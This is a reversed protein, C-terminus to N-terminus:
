AIVSVGNSDSPRIYGAKCLGKQRHAKLERFPYVQKCDKNCQFRLNLLVELLVQHQSNMIDYENCVTCSLKNGDRPHGSALSYDQLCKLCCSQFCHRCELM